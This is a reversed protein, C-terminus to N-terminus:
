ATKRFGSSYLVNSATAAGGGGQAYKPQLINGPGMAAKVFQSQDYMKGLYNGGGVITDTARKGLYTDSANRVAGGTVHDALSLLKSGASAIGGIRNLVAHANLSGIRHTVNSILSGIRSFFGM